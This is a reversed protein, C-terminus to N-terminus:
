LNTLNAIDDEAVKHSLVQKERKLAREEISLTTIQEEITSM